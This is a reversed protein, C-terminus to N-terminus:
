LVRVGRDAYVSKQPTHRIARDLGMLLAVIGDIKERSKEKDPKINGAADLNAVVNDAMWNLVPNNGHAIKHSMVLRELEKMPPSMSAFGQGFEVLLPARSLKHREADTTFGLRDQLVNTVRSAGWRDFAVEDIVFQRMDRDIQAFIYEYDIVSGPTAEIFGERVWVDYPVRDDHSRKLMNEEPIWFRSLVLYVDEGALPPFVLVFATLDLTSSLDLGAYCKRGSLAAYDIPLGCQRWHEIPMWKTESQTWINLELRLFSNQASPMEIARQCKRRLDDLKKSVNLNPNAKIWTAEDQWDDNDDLTYILGFFTDDEVVRDLIKKSYENLVWCLSQRDYGATTIGFLLPQRRAGTATDLRDWMERTKHAHIEDVIAGHINLGDTTDADAGLPEFKSATGEINLNDRFTRIRRRLMPSARVMRIAELHTIRAQDRKTAASYIEAGPEGDAALLYLGIGAGLTSKGNKRAVEIYATRFRRTGDDKKWGFLVWLMFQQWPELKILKGAWEGKSHKLITFFKLVHEAADRDFLLGRAPGDKLDDVHRQCAQQVWHCAIQKGSLVDAIYRDAQWTM